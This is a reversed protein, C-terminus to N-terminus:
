LSINRVWNLAIGGDSAKNHLSTKQQAYSCMSLRLSYTLWIVQATHARSDGCYRRCPRFEQSASNTAGKLVLEIKPVIDPLVTIRFIPGLVMSSEPLSPTTFSINHICAKSNSKCVLLLWSKQDSALFSLRLLWLILLTTSPCHSADSMTQGCTDRATYMHIMYRRQFLYLYLYLHIQIAGQRSWVQLASLYPVREWTWLKVQVGWAWGSISHVM